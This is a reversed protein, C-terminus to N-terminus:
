QSISSSKFFDNLTIILHKELMQGTYDNLSNFNEFDGRQHDVSDKVVYSKEAVVRGHSLLTYKADFDAIIEYNASALGLSILKMATTKGTQYDAYAPGKKDHAVLEVHLVYDANKPDAKKVDAPLQDYIYEPLKKLTVASAVSLEAKDLPVLPLQDGGSFVGPRPQSYLIEYGFAKNEFASSHVRELAPVNIQAHTACGALALLSCAAAFPLVAKKFM